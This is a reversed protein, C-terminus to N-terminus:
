LAGIMTNVALKEQGDNFGYFYDILDNFYDKSAAIEPAAYLSYKIDNESIINESMCYTVMAQSYWGNGRLPFYNESQVFYLGPLNYGYRSDYVRVQDMVTFVPFDFKSYYM